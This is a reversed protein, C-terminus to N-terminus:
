LSFSRSLKQLSIKKNFSKSIHIIHSLVIYLTPEYSPVVLKQVCRTVVTTERLVDLKTNGELVRTPSGLVVLM